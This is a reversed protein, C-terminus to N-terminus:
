IGKPAINLFEEENVFGVIKKNDMLKGNKDFFIIAPPGFIAYKKQLEKEEKSNSTVDAKVLVFNQLFKQIKSNNFTFNELEKCSVCWKAYFDVMVIKGKSHSLITDLEKISHIKQFSIEKKIITNKQNGVFKDFPQLINKSGSGVGIFLFVGLLFFIIGVGKFLANWSKNAVM